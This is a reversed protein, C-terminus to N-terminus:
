IHFYIFIGANNILIDLPIEKELFGQAAKKVQGLDQLDLEMFEVTKGTEMKIKKIAEEARAKSRSAMFVTCGKIVLQKVVEFGIGTNGGTVIATHGNLDPIEQLSFVM